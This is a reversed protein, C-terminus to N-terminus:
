AVQAYEHILGGLMDRRRRELTLRRHRGSGGEPVALALSRHPLQQNDHRVYRRLLWPLHRRDLVLTWDRCEVRVTQVWRKAYANAKPVRIPTGLVQGGEGGFVEDFGRSFKADQDRLLFRCEGITSTWRPM